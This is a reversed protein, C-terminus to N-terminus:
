GGELRVRQLGVRFYMVKTIAARRFQPLDGAEVNWPIFTCSM